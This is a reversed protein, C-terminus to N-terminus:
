NETAKLKMTIDLLQERYKWHRTAQRIADEYETGTFLEIVIDLLANEAKHRINHAEASPIWGKGRKDAIGAKLYETYLKDLYDNQQTTDTDSFMKYDDRPDTIRREADPHRKKTLEWLEGNIYYENEALVKRKIEKDQEEIAEEMAKAILYTEQLATIETARNQIKETFATLLLATIDNKTATM